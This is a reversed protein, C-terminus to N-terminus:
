KGMVQAFNDATVPMSFYYGQIQDCGISTLFEYQAQTEVGEAIVRFNLNHAMSVIAIYIARDRENEITTIFSRDMKISEAEMVRLCHMNSYGRGFDDIAIKLGLANLQALTDLFFKQDQAMCNETIELKLASTPLGYKELAATIINILNPNNFQRPSFNLAVPVTRIGADLWQRIQRCAENLVWEGLSDILGTKEALDIFRGPLVLGQQPMQWRVLAEAGVIRGSRICVQPQYHLEFQEAQIAHRLKQELELTELVSEHLAETFFHFRNRGDQKARYMAMDAYKLLTDASTGDDPYMSIGISCGVSFPQGQILCPKQVADIIRQVTHLLSDSGKKSDTEIDPFLLVFEDGGIRAVTDSERVSTTLRAAIETLLSDGAIHGLSDNINKFNDLDVFLVALQEGEQHASHIAQEIRDSLLLRNPLGTLSDHTAQYSIETELSKRASIDVVTGEFYLLNGGPGYVTHANESIWIISGDHTYVRSEFDTVKGNLNMQRLFETRRGPDVYLQLSINSLDEIMASPSDYGYIRALASNVALYTGNETTQFIGETANEFISRYRREAEALSEEHLHRQTIDEIFGHIVQVNREKDLMGSGREWVWHVNGNAHCIRYEISFPQQQAVATYIAERVRPRDLPHTIDEYSIRSNFLLEEPQYGTLKRCGDSVYEMTWHEDLQCRYVMGDLESLLMELLRERQLRDPLNLYRINTFEM